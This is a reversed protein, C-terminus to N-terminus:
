IYLFVKNAIKKMTIEKLEKTEQKFLINALLTELRRDHPMRIFVFIHFHDIACFINM